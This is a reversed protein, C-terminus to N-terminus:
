LSSIASARLFAPTSTVSWGTLPAPCPPRSNELASFRLNISSNKSRCRLCFRQRCLSDSSAGSIAASHSGGLPRQAPRPSAPPRNFVKARQRRRRINRRHFDSSGIRWNVQASSLHCIHSHCTTLRYIACVNGGLSGVIRKMVSRCILADLRTAWTPKASASCLPGGGDPLRATGM